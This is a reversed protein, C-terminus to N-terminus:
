AAPAPPVVPAPAVQPQPRDILEEQKQPLDAAERLKREIADDPTLAGAAM